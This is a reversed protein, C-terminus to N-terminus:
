RLLTEDDFPEIGNNRVRSFGQNGDQSANIGIKLWRDQFSDRVNERLTRQGVNQPPKTVPRSKKLRSIVVLLSRTHYGVEPEILEAAEEVM